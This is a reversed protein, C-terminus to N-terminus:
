ARRRTFGKGPWGPFPGYLFEMAEALGRLMRLEKQTYSALVIQDFDSNVSM